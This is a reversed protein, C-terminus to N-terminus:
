ALFPTHIPLEPHPTDHLIAPPSKVCFPINSCLGSTPSTLTYLSLSSTCIESDKVQLNTLNHSQIFNDPSNPPYPLPTFVSGRPKQHKSSPFILSPATPCLLLLPHHGPFGVPIAPASETQPLRRPNPLWLRQNYPVDTTTASNSSHPWHHCFSSSPM